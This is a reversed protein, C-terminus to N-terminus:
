PAFWNTKDAKKQKYQLTSSTNEIKKKLKKLFQNGIIKYVKWLTTSAQLTMYGPLVICATMTAGLEL